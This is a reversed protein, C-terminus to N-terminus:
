FESLGPVFVSNGPDVGSRVTYFVCWDWWGIASQSTNTYLALTSRPPHPGMGPEPIRGYM